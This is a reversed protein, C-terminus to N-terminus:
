NHLFFLEHKLTIMLIFNVLIFCQKLGLNVRKRKRNRQNYNHIHRARLKKVGRQYTNINLFILQDTLHQLLSQHQGWRDAVRSVLCFISRGVEEKCGRKKNSLLGEWWLLRRYIYFGVWWCMMNVREDGCIYIHQSASLHQKTQSSLNIYYVVLYM